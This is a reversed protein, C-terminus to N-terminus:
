RWQKMERIRKLTNKDKCLVNDHNSNSEIRKGDISMDKTNNQDDLRNIETKIKRNTISDSVLPCCIM